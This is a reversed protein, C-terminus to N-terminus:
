RRSLVLSAIRRVEIDDDHAAARGLAEVAQPTGVAPLAAVVAKRAAPAHLAMADVLARWADPRRM